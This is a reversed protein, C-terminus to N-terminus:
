CPATRHGPRPKRQRQRMQREPARVVLLLPLESSEELINLAHQLQTNVTARDSASKDNVIAVCAVHVLAQALALDSDDLHGVGESFLGIAGGSCARAAADAARPGVRVGVNRSSTLVRAEPDGKATASGPRGTRAAPVCALDSTMARAAKTIWDDFGLLLEVYEVIRGRLAEQMEIFARWATAQAETIGWARGLETTMCMVFSVLQRIVENGYAQSSM